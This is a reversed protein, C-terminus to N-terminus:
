REAEKNKKRGKKRIKREEKKREKKPRDKEIAIKFMLPFSKGFFNTIM